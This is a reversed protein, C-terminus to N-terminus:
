KAKGPKLELLPELAAINGSALVTMEGLEQANSVLVMTTAQCGAKKIEEVDFEVLLEGKKVRAGAEVCAHFGKGQMEVTDIGIHLLLEMGDDTRMGLAHGTPFMAAIEGDAPAYLKGTEPEIGVGQGMAGSAFAPDDVESLPLVQGAVPSFVINRTKAAGGGAEESKKKNGLLKDLFGM